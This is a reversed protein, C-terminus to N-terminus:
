DATGSTSSSSSSSALAAIAALALGAAIYPGANGLSGMVAMPAPPPAVYTDQIAPSLGGAFAAGGSMAVVAAAIMMKGFTM